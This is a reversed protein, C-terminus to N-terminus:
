YRDRPGNIDKDFNAGVKRLLFDGYVVPEYMKTAAAAKEALKLGGDPEIQSLDPSDTRNTEATGNTRHTGNTNGHVPTSTARTPTRSVVSARRAHDMYHAHNSGPAHAGALTVPPTSDAQIRLAAPLPAVRATFNPEFFFPVSIHALLM